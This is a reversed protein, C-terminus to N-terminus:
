VEVDVVHLFQQREFLTAFTGGILNQVTELIAFNFEIKQRPAVRVLHRDHRIRRDTVAALQESIRNEIFDRSRMIRSGGLNREGPHQALRFYDCNRLRARLRVDARVGGRKFYSQRFFM